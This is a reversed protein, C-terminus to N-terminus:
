WMEGYFLVLGGWLWKPLTCWWGERCVICKDAEHAVQQAISM